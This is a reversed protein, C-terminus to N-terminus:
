TISTNKDTMDNQNISTVYEKKQKATSDVYGYLIRDFFLFNFLVLTMAEQYSM